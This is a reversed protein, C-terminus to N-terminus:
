GHRLAFAHVARNMWYHWLLVTKRGTRQWREIGAESQNYIVSEGPKLQYRCEPDFCFWDISGENDIREQTAGILLALSNSTGLFIIPSLHRKLSQGLRSESLRFDEKPCARLKNL